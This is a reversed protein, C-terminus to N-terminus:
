TTTKAPPLNNTEFPVASFRRQLKVRKANQPTKPRTRFRPCVLSRDLYSLLVACGLCQDGALFCLFSVHWASCHSVSSLPISLMLAFHFDAERPRSKLPRQGGTSPRGWSSFLESKESPESNTDVHCTFPVIARAFRQCKASFVLTLSFPPCYFLFRPLQHADISPRRLFRLAAFLAVGTSHELISQLTLLKFLHELPRDSHMWQCTNERVVKVEVPRRRCCDGRESTQRWSSM